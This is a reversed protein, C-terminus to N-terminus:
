APVGAEIRAHGCYIAAPLGNADSRYYIAAAAEGTHAARWGDIEDTWCRADPAPITPGREQWYQIGISTSLQYASCARGVAESMAAAATADCAAGLKEDGVWCEAVVVPQGPLWQLLLRVSASTHFRLLRLLMRTAPDEVAGAEIWACRRHEAFRDSRLLASALAQRRWVEESLAAVIPTGADGGAGVLQVIAECVARAGAQEADL